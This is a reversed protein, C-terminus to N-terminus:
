KPLHLQIIEMDEPRDFVKGPFFRKVLLRVGGFAVGIGLAVLMLMGVLIVLNVLFNAVNDKKSFYTNENWTIDADYNVSALLSKAESSSIRGATLVVMPGTRKAEFPAALEPNSTAPPNQNLATIQRLREGAIAPTPYSILMLTATGASSNYQGLVVEAGQAFGVVHEPIPSGARALGVPGTVYKASNKVYSQRPLYTPLIPLNKAPGQAQPLMSALERLEGATMATIRDLTVQVLVNSRYFLVRNNLSAGLSEGPKGGMDVPTMEPEKYLTFAGYAGTADAFRAARVTIKREPRTYESTELDTFGEEKLLAANTPDAIAPDTSTTSSAKTWGAFENPLLTPSDAALGSPVLSAVIAITLFILVRKM